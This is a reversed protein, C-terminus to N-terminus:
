MSIKINGEKSDSDGEEDYFVVESEDNIIRILARLRCENYIKYLSDFELYPKGNKNKVQKFVYKTKEENSM